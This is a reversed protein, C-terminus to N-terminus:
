RRCFPVCFCVIKSGCTMMSLIDDKNDEYRFEVMERAKGSVLRAQQRKLKESTKATLNYASDVINFTSCLHNYTHTYTFIKKENNSSPNLSELILQGKRSDRDVNRLRAHDQGVFFSLMENVVAILM